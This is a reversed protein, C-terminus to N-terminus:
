SGIGSMVSPTTSASTLTMPVATVTLTTPILLGRVRFGTPTLFTPSITAARTLCCPPCAFTHLLPMDSPQRPLYPRAQLSLGTGCPLRRVNSPNSPWLMVLLRSGCIEHFPPQVGAKLAMSDLPPTLWPSLGRTRAGLARHHCCHLAHARHACCAFCLLSHLNVLASERTLRRYEDDATALDSAEFDQDQAFVYMYIYMDVCM